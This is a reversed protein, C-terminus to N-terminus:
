RMAIMQSPTLLWQLEGSPRKEYMLSRIKACGGKTLALSARGGGTIIRGILGSLDPEHGVLLVAADKGEQVAHYCITDPDGGPGLEDWVELRDKQALARAVIEATERARVLPSTAITDFRIKEKRMWRGIKRIERRGEATLARTADDQGSPHGAKGHRLIYLNM